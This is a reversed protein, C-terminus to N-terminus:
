ATQPRALGYNRMSLVKENFQMFPQIFPGVGFLFAMTGVGVPGGLIWGSSFLLIELFMKAKFFSWDWKQVMTIAVLDMIRIGIESIIILASAYACLGVAIILMLYPSLFPRTYTELKLLNWLDILLGVSFGPGVYCGALFRPSGVDQKFDLFGVRQVGKVFEIVAACFESVARPVFHRKQVVIEGTM